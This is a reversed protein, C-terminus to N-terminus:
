ILVISIFSFFKSSLYRDVSYKCTHIMKVANPVATCTVPQAVSPFESASPVPSPEVSVLFATLNTIFYMANGSSRVCVVCGTAVSTVM